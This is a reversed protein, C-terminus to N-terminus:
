PLFVVAFGSTIYRIPDHRRPNLSVRRCLHCPSLSTAIFAFGSERDPVAHTAPAFVLSGVMVRTFQVPSVRLSWSDSLWDTQSCRHCTCVLMKLILKTFQVSPPRLSWCNSFWNPWNCPHCACLGSIRCDIRQVAGICACLGPPIPVAKWLVTEYVRTCCWQMITHTHKYTCAQIHIITHTHKHSLTRRIDLHRDFSWICNTVAHWGVHNRKYWNMNNAQRFDMLLELVHRFSCM